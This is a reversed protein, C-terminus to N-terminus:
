VKYPAFFFRPFKNRTLFFVLWTVGLVTGVVLLFYLENYFYAVFLPGLVSGLGKGTIGIVEGYIEVDRRYNISVSDSLMLMVSTQTLNSFLEFVSFSVTCVLISLSVLSFLKTTSLAIATAVLGLAYYNFSKALPLKELQKSLYYSHVIVGTIYSIGLVISIEVFSLSPEPLMMWVVFGEKIMATGLSSALRLFVGCWFAKSLFSKVEPRRYKDRIPVFQTQVPEEPEFDEEIFSIHTCKVEQTPTPEQLTEETENPIKFKNSTDARASQPAKPESNTPKSRPSFFRVKPEEEDDSNESYNLESSVQLYSPLDVEEDSNEKRETVPGEIQVMERNTEEQLEAYNKTPVVAATPPPYYPCKMLSEKLFMSVLYFAILQAFGVVSFILFLPNETFFSYDAFGTKHPYSLVGLLFGLTVGLSYSKLLSYTVKPFEESCSSSIEKLVIRGLNMVGAFFGCFGRFLCIVPFTNLFPMAFNMVVSFVLCACIVPKRGCNESVRYWFAWGLLKGLMFCGTLLGSYFGVDKLDEVVEKDLVIFGGLPLTVVMGMGLSVIAAEVSRVQNWDIARQDRNVM